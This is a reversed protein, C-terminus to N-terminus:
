KVTMACLKELWPFLKDKAAIAREGSMRAECEMAPAGYEGGSIKQVVIAEISYSTELTVVFGDGVKEQKSIKDSSHQRVEEELTPTSYRQRVSVSPGNKPTGEWKLYAPLAKDAGPQALNSPLSMTVTRDGDGYGYSSLKFTVTSTPLEALAALKAIKDKKTEEKLVEIAKKYADGLRIKSACASARESEGACASLEWFTAPADRQLVVMLKECLKQDATDDEGYDTDIEFKHPEIRDKLGAKEIKRCLRDADEARSRAREEPTMPTTVEDDDKKSSRTPKDEDGCSLCLTTLAAGMFTGWRHERM